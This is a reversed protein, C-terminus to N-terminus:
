CWRWVGNSEMTAYESRMQTAYEGGWTQEAVKFLNDLSVDLKSLEIWHGCSTLLQGGTPYTLLVHGSCRVIVKLGHPYSPKLLARWGMVPTTVQQALTSASPVGVSHTSHSDSFSCSFDQDQTGKIEDYCCTCTILLTHSHTSHSLQSTLPTLADACHSTSHSHLLHCHSLPLTCYAFHSHLPSLTSHTLHTSHLVPSGKATRRCGSWANCLSCDPSALYLGAYNASEFAVVLPDNM